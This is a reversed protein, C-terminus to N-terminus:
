RCLYGGDVPLVHATTMTLCYLAEVAIAVDAPECIRRLPIHQALETEKGPQDLLDRTMPSRVLTPAIANVRIGQRAWRMALARTATVLAGKSAAYRTDHCVGVECDQGGSAVIADTSAIFVVLPTVGRKLLPLLLESAAIPAVYNVHWLEQMATDSRAATEDDHFVGAAHVLLDLGNTSENIRTIAQPLDTQSTLDCQIHLHNSSGKPPTRDLGAVFAGSAAYRAAIESGVGGSSGTVVVRM